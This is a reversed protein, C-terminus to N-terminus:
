LQERRTKMKQFRQIIAENSLENLKKKEIYVVLSDNLLQDGMRNRLRNKIIKMASFAKEVTATAVLLLLALQLLRYVSPYVGSKKSCILNHALEGLSRLGTFEVSNCMDYIYADLEDGLAFREMLSFDNPYFFALHILKQKDFASFFDNPSLCEVCVLLEIAETFRENLKKLQM